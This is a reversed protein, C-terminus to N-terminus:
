RDVSPSPRRAKKPAATEAKPATATHVKARLGDIFAEGKKQLAAVEKLGDSISTAGNKVLKDAKSDKEIVIGVKALPRTLKQAIQSPKPTSM